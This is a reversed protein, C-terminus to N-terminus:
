FVVRVPTVIYLYNEESVPRICAPSLSNNMEITVEEDDINKLVELIYRANFAVNLSEGETVSSVSERGKGVDNSSSNIVIESSKVNIKVISYDGEGSFLSVRKVAGELEKVNVKTKIAFKAPIVRKYDPFEGEVLSSVITTSGIKIIVQRNLLSIIVDQPLDSNLNNVVENLLRGPMIMSYDKDENNQVDASKIALRHTNTGVFTITSGKKEFLIGTFLPRTEDTSRAYITKKILNKLIEDSIILKEEGTIAPFAPYDNEDMLVIQFNAKGAEISVTSDNANKSIVVEETQLSSLLDSFYKAPVVINGSEEVNAEIQCGIAMNLDMGQIEVQNNAAILHIGSFIPTTPNSSIAKKATQVAKSLFNTKCIFKM